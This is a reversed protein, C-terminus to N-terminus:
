WKGGNRWEPNAKLFAQLEKKARDHVECSYGYVTKCWEDAPMGYRNKMFCLVADISRFGILRITYRTYLNLEEDTVGGLLHILYKRIKNM